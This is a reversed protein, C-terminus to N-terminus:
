WLWNFLRTLLGPTAKATAPGSGKVDISADAVRSSDIRNDASLDMPRVIGRIVIDTEEDNVRIHKTGVVRLTGNPLVEEIRATVDMQLRGNRSTQGEGQFDDRGRIDTGNSVLGPILGGFDFDTRVRGDKRRNTLASSEAITRETVVITVLNGVGLFPRAFSTLNENPGEVYVSDAHAATAHALLVSCALAALIRMM